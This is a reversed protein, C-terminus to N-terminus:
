NGVALNRGSMEKRIGQPEKGFVVNKKEM